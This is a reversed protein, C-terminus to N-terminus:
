LNEELIRESTLKASLLVLPIGNGPHTSGGVFYLNKYKCHRNAPRFYGMQFITHSLSGFVGGKEVRYSNEWTLPNYCVEFKIHEEFDELGFQKLRNIVSKRALARFEDWPQLHKDSIHGVPVIVSITDMDRPAATEDTRAPAHVYFSPNPALAKDRFIKKLNSHYEKSLFISHHGLKNYRKDLGWHFVFASCSYKKKDIRHAKRKDPLINKYANPLDANIVVLDAQKTLGNTLKIGKVSGKLIVVEKVTKNFHFKVGNDKATVMLKEVISYIGGVPFLTGETLEVASLMSFFAPAQYPSQGVYINQFSFAKQLDTDKFFWKVYKSHRIYTKMKLLRRFNPISMFEFLRYYNRGLLKTIAIKYFDYGTAIYKEYAKFSGPEFEELQERMKKKDTSFALKRNEDFYITYIDDIPKLDLCEDFDLDIYQFVKRYVSPMLVLTAGIDFRHGDRVFRGCRGGPLSRKEYVQVRYGQKALAISTAIGGIGAGVIIVSKNRM